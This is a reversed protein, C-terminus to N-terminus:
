VDPVLGLARALADTPFVFARALNNIDTATMAAFDPTPAADGAGATAPIQM